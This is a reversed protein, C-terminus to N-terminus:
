NELPTITIEAGPLENLAAYRKHITTDAVQADDRWVGLTTLADMVAKALNDADPKGTHAIRGQPATRTLLRKPRPFLFTMVLSYAGDGPEIEPVARRYELAVQSKWHEATGPDFLRAKGHFAFARPRPQGKPLGHVRLQIPAAITM